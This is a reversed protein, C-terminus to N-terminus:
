ARWEGRIIMDDPVMAPTESENTMTVVGELKVDRGFRIDGTISLRECGLLSPPGHPFRTDFDDVKKFHKKDLDIVARPLVRAPNAVVQYDDTLVYNDSRVDLLDATSKIPAFRSKPVRVAGAGRFVEIAAGMATEIQYVKASTDDRPDVTKANCIMPLGLIGDYETLMDKLAPLDLWLSNTNFYRHRTIDQFSAEDEPPCQASERLVLRGDARVALHGGKKDAEARDAVEMMFPLGRNVFYGLLATDMVAGLNDSNSVFAHRYGGALLTDLMGSTVLATYIDGHGPPCWELDPNDAWEAPNMEAQTIKPVKHQLFDFPIDGFLDPYPALAALTDDRTSYSNMLVLPMRSRETQKAIIDLFTLGDKITLLSKAKTLGMSTGLGGNLKIMLAHPLAKEGVATLEPTFDAMDPLSSVPEIDAEPMLGTEGSVLQDYYSRFTRIVIEPLDADRMKKAFPEFNGSTDTM